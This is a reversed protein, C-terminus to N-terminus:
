AVRGALKASRPQQGLSALPELGRDIGVVPAYGLSQRARTGSLDGRRARAGERQVREAAAPSRASAVLTRGESRLRRLLHRGVCGSGGTLLIKM